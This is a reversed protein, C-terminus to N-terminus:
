RRRDPQGFRREGVIRGFLTEVVADAVPDYIERQQSKQEGGEIVAARIQVTQEVIGFIRFREMLFEGIREQATHQRERGFALLLNELSQDLLREALVAIILHNSGNMLSQVFHCFFFLVARIGNNETLCFYFIEQSEATYLLLFKFCKILMKLVGCAAISGQHSGVDHICAFKLDFCRVDRDLDTRVPCIQYFGMIDVTTGAQDNRDCVLYQDIAYRYRTFM